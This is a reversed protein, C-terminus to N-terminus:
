CTQVGSRKFNSDCNPCRTIVAFFNQLAPIALQFLTAHEEPSANLATALRDIVAVSPRKSGSELCAYWERSVGIAEALEEQSVARGRRSNLREHKGLMATAPDLRGRLQKLLSPIQDPQKLHATIM